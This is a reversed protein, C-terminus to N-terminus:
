HPMSLIAGHGNATVEQHDAAADGTQARRDGKGIGATDDDEGLGIRSLAVRPIRLAANSGGETGVVRGLQVRAIRDGCAVAQTHGLGHTRERLLPGPVNTLQDVPTSLEIAVAAPLRRESPLGRVGNSADQMRAIRSTALDPPHQPLLNGCM